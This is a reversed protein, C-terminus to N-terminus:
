GIALHDRLLGRLQDASTLAGAHRYVIRGDADVFLTQPIGVVGIRGAFARDPDALQAYTWGHAGAFDLAATPDPDAVDVGVFRVSGGSQQSAEALFPAETRCPGCWTAWLNIVMPTGRLASLDVSGSGDLCTQLLSPLQDAGATSAVAAGGATPAPCPAIGLSERRGVLDPPPSSPSASGDAGASAAASGSSPAVPQVPQTAACGTVLLLWGVVAAPLARRWAATRGGRGISRM